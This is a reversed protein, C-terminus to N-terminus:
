QGVGGAQQGGLAKMFVKKLMAEEGAEKVSKLANFRTRAMRADAPRGAREYLLALRYWADSYSPDIKVAEKLAAVAPKMNGQRQHIKSEAVLCLSCDPIGREAVAIEDLMRAYETSHLKLLDAVDLYYLYPDSPLNKLGGAAIRESESLKGDIYLVFAAVLRAPSFQPTISLLKHCTQICDTDHGEQFQALALGLLLFSSSPNFDAGLGFIRAAQTYDRQRLCFMGYELTYNEQQPEANFAAALDRQALRSEGLAAEIKGRLYQRAVEDAEAGRPAAEIAAFAPRYRQLAFEALALDFHAEFVAPYDRTCRAFIPAADSYFGQQALHIGVRLLTDADLQRIALLQGAFDHVKRSQNAAAARYLSSVLSEETLSAHDSKFFAEQARRARSEGSACSAPTSQGAM